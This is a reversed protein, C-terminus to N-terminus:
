KKYLYSRDFVQGNFLKKTCNSIGGITEGFQQLKEKNNLYKTCDKNQEKSINNATTHIKDFCGNGFTKNKVVGDLKNNTDNDGSNYTGKNLLFYKSTSEM